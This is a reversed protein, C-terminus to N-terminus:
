PEIQYDESYKKEENKEEDKRFVYNSNKNIQVLCMTTVGLFGGIISGAAFMVIERM